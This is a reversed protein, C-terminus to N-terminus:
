IAKGLKFYSGGLKTYTSIPVLILASVVVGNTTNTAVVLGILGSLFPIPKFIM